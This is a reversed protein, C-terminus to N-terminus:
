MSLWDSVGDFKFSFAQMPSAAYNAAGDITQSAPPAITVTNTLNGICKVNFEQGKGASAPATITIPGSTADAIVLENGAAQYNATKSVWYVINDSCASIKMDGVFNVVSFNTADCNIFYFDSTQGSFSANGITLTTFTCNTFKHGTGIFNTSTGLIECNDFMFKHYVASAAVDRINKCNSLRVGTRGAPDMDFGGFDMGDFYAEDATPRIFQCTSPSSASHTITRMIGANDLSYSGGGFVQFNSVEGANVILQSISAASLIEIHFSDAEAGKETVLASTSGAGAHLTFDRVSSKAVLNLGTNNASGAYINLGGDIHAVVNGVLSSGSNSSSVNVRGPGSFIVPVLSLAGASNSQICKKGSQPVFTIQADSSTFSFCISKSNTYLSGNITTTGAHLVILVPNAITISSEGGVAAPSSNSGLVLIRTKGNNVADAINEYRGPLSAVGDVVADFASLANHPYFASVTDSGNNSRVFVVQDHTNIAIEGLAFDGTGPAAGPTSSRKFKVTNAM